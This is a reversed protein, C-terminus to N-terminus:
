EGKIQDLIIEIQAINALLSADLYHIDVATQEVLVELYFKDLDAIISDLLLKLLEKQEKQLLTIDYESLKIYLSNLAYGINRFEYSISFITGFRTAVTQFKEMYDDNVQDFQSSQEQFIKITDAIEAIHDPDFSDEQMFECASIKEQEEFHMKDIEEDVDESDFDFFEDGDEFFDSNEEQTNKLYAFYECFKEHADSEKLGRKQSFEQLRDCLNDILERACESDIEGLEHKVEEKDVDFGFYVLLARFFGIKKLFSVVDQGKPNCQQLEIEVVEKIPYIVDNTLDKLLEKNLKM